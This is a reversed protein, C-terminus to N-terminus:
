RFMDAIYDRLIWCVSAMLAIVIILKERLQLKSEPYEETEDHNIPTKNM